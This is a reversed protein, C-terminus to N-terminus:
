IINSEQDFKKYSLIISLFALTLMIGFSLM